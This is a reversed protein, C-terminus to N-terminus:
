GAIHLGDSDADGPYIKGYRLQSWITATDSRYRRWPFIMSCRKCALVEDSSRGTNPDKGKLPMILAINVIARRYRFRGGFGRGRVAGTRNFSGARYTGGTEGVGSRQHAKRVVKVSARDGSRAPLRWRQWNNGGGAREPEAVPQFCREGRPFLLLACQSVVPLEKTQGAFQPDQMERLACLRLSGWIDEASLKVGRAASYQPIRLNACRTSCVQRLGNVHTGQM